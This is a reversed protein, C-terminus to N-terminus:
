INKCVVILLILIVIFALSGVSTGFYSLPEFHTPIKITSSEKLGNLGKRTKNLQAIIAKSPVSLKIHKTLGLSDKKELVIKGSEVKYIKNLSAVETQYTKFTNIKKIVFHKSTM